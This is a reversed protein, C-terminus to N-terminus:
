LDGPCDLSSLADGGDENYYDTLYKLVRDRQLKDLKDLMMICTKMSKFEHVKPSLPEKRTRM